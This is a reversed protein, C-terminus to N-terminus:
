IRNNTTFKMGVRFINLVMPHTELIEIIAVIEFQLGDFITMEEM